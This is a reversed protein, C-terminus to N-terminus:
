RRSYEYIIALTFIINAIILINEVSITSYLKERHDRWLITDMFVLTTQEDEPISM